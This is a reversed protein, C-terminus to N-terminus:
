ESLACGDMGAYGGELSRRSCMSRECNWISPLAERLAAARLFPPPPPGAGRSGPRWCGESGWPNTLFAGTSSTTSIRETFLFNM